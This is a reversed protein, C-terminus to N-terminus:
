FDVQFRMMLARADGDLDEPDIDVVNLTVRTNPNLWWNVGVRLTDMEGGAYPGDNLDVTDWGLAVQWGGTGDGDGYDSKINPRDFAGKSTSYTDSDGTLWYSVELCLSDFDFDEVGDDGNGGVTAYEAKAKFPGTVFAAELGLLNGDQIGELTGTDVFRPGIHVSPRSRYRVTDDSFDRYSYALGLHLYTAGDDEVLPRGSIRGTINYEGKKENGVDDGAADADRFMGLQWLAMKDAVNGQVMIGTNRGPTFGSNEILNREMFTIFRSSTLRDLGFPEDFHGAKLEGFPLDKLEMLVDAFEVAGGAFDIESKFGVNGHLTGTAGLRVRRFETGGNIKGLASTVEDDADWWVWDNQIRGYFQYQFAKDSSAFKMGSKFAASMGNEDDAASRELESIRAELDSNAAFYGGRMGESVKELRQELENVRDELAKERAEDARAATTAACLAAGALVAATTRTQM